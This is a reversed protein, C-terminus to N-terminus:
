EKVQQGYHLVEQMHLGYCVAFGKAVGWDPSHTLTQKSPKFIFIPLRNASRELFIRYRSLNGGAGSRTLSEM